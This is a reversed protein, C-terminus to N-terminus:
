FQIIKSYKYDKNFGAPKTNNDKDFDSSIYKDVAKDFNGDFDYAEAQVIYEETIEINRQIREIDQQYRNLRQRAAVTYSRFQEKLKPKEREFMEKASIVLVTEIQALPIELLDIVGSMNMDCKTADMRPEIHHRIPVRLMDGETIPTDAILYYDDYVVNRFVGRSKVIINGVKLKDIADFNMELQKVLEAQKQVASELENKAKQKLEEFSM